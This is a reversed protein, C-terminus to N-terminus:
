AEGRAKALAHTVDSPVIAGIEALRDAAKKLAEYLEPAAAILHANAACQTESDEGHWQGYDNTSHNAVVCVLGTPAHISATGDDAWPGPTWNEGSM